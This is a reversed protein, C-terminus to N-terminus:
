NFEEKKVLPEIMFPIMYTQREKIMLLNLSDMITIFM